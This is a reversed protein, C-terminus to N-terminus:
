WTVVLELKVTGQESVQETAASHRPRSSGKGRRKSAGLEVESGIDIHSHMLYFHFDLCNLSVSYVSKSSLVM